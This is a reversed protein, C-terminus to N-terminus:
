PGLQVILEVLQPKLEQICQDLLQAEATHQRKEIRFAKQGVKKVRRYNKEDPEDRYLNKAQGDYTAYEVQSRTGAELTQLQRIHSTSTETVQVALDLHVEKSGKVKAYMTQRVNTPRKKKEGDADVYEERSGDWWWADVTETLEVPEPAQVATIRIAVLYDAQTHRGMEIAAAYDTFNDRQREEALPELNRRDVYNIFSDQRALLGALVEAYLKEALNTKAYFSKNEVPLVAITVRGNDICDQMYERSNRFAPVRAFAAHAARWAGQNFLSLGQEYVASKWLRDVDRYDPQRQRLDALAVEARAFDKAQLLASGEEYLAELERAQAKEYLRRDEGGPELAVGYGAVREQYKWAAAYLRV